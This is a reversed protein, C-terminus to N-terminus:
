AGRKCHTALGTGTARDVWRRAMDGPGVFRNEFTM